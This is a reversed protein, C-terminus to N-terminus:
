QGIGELKGGKAHRCTFGYETHLLEKLAGQKLTAIRHRDHWLRVYLHAADLYSAYRQQCTRRYTVMVTDYPQGSGLQVSVMRNSGDQLLFNSVPGHGVSARGSYSAAAAEPRLTLYAGWEPDETADDLRNWNKPIPRAPLSALPNLGLAVDLDDSM